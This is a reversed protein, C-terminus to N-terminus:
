SGFFLLQIQRNSLIALAMLVICILITVVIFDQIERGLVETYFWGVLVWIVGVTLMVPVMHPTNTIMIRFIELM